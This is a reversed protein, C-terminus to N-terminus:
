LELLGQALQLPWHEVVVLFSPAQPVRQRRDALVQTAHTRTTDLPAPQQSRRRVKTQLHHRAAVHVPHLAVDQSQEPRDPTM